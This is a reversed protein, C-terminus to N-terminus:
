FRIIGPQKDTYTQGTVVNQLFNLVNKEMAFERENSVVSVHEKRKRAHTDQKLWM